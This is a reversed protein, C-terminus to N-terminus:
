YVIIEFIETYTYSNKEKDNFEYTLVAKITNIGKKTLVEKVDIGTKSVKQLTRKAKTNDVGINEIKFNRKSNPINAILYHYKLTDGVKLNQNVTQKLRRKEAMKNQYTERLPLGKFNEINGKEDFLITYAQKGSDDYSTYRMIKGSPFNEIKEEIGENVQESDPTLKSNSVSDGKKIGYQSKEKQINSSYEKLTNAKENKFYFFVAILTLIATVIIINKKKM